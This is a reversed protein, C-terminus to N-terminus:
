LQTILKTFLSVTLRCFSKLGINSVHRHLESKVPVRDGKNHLDRAMLRKADPKTYNKPSNACM